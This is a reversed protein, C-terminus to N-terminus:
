YTMGQATRLIPMGKYLGSWGENEVIRRLAEFTSHKAEGKNAMHMRSKVTIYPYTIATALLKGIAGLYFIDTATVKRRKSLLDKLQEFITYQLIPNIVLVLAPLVGKFLSAFGESRVLSIFTGVTSPARKPNSGPSAQEESEQKRATM